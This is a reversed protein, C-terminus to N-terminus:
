RGAKELNKRNSLHHITLLLVGGLVGVLHFPLFNMLKVSTQTFTMLYYYPAWTFIGLAILVSGAIQLPNRKTPPIGLKKRAFSRLRAGGIVGVLHFPLFLLFSPHKGAIQLIIFPTWILVGVWILLTGWRFYKSANTPLNTNTEM